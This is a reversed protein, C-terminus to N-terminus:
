NEQPDSLSPYERSGAVFLTDPDDEFENVLEDDCEELGLEEPHPKLGATLGFTEPSVDMM